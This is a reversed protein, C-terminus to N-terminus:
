KVSKKVRQNYLPLEIAYLGSKLHLYFFRGTIPPKEKPPPTIVAIVPSDPISSCYGIHLSVPIIVVEKREVFSEEYPSVGPPCIAYLVLPTQKQGSSTVSLIVRKKRVEIMQQGRTSAMLPWATTILLVFALGLM